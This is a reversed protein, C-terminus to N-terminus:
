KVAQLTTRWLGSVIHRQQLREVVFPELGKVETGNEGDAGVVQIKYVMGPMQIDDNLADLVSQHALFLERKLAQIPQKEAFCSQGTNQV